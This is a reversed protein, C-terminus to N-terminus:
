RSQHPQTDDTASPRAIDRRMDGYFRVSAWIIGVVLNILILVNFVEPTLFSLNM